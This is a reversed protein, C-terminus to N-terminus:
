LKGIQIFRGPFLIAGHLVDNDSRKVWFVNASLLRVCEVIHGKHYGDTAFYIYGSKM